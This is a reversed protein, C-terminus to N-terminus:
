IAEYKGSRPEYVYGERKLIDLCSQLDSLEMNLEHILEEKAWHKKNRFLGQVISLKDRLKSPMYIESLSFNFDKLFAEFIKKMTEFDEFAAQQRLHLKASAQVVRKMALLTRANIAIDGSKHKLNDFYSSLQKEIGSISPEFRSCYAFYKKLLPDDTTETNELISYSNIESNGKMTWILDFRQLLTEPLNIQELITKSSDFFSNIPNAAAVVTTATSFKMKIGAKSKTFELQEMASHLAITDEKRMKDLEDISLVGNNALVLMGPIMVRTGNVESIAATLGPGSADSVYFGKPSDNKVAKLLESKGIGPNGVMLIHIKDRKNSKTGGVIALALSEKIVNYEEGIISSAFNKHIYDWPEKAIGEIKIAEDKSIELKQNGIFKIAYALVGIYRNMKKIFQSLFGAVDVRDGVSYKNISNGRVFVSIIGPTGVGIDEYNEILFIEQVREGISEDPLFQLPGRSYGCMECEKIKIQSHNMHGCAPCKFVMDTYEIHPPNEIYAVWGSIRILKNISGYDLGSISALPWNLIEFEPRYFDDTDSDGKQVIINCLADNLQKIMEQPNIDLWELICKATEHMFAKDSERDYERAVRDILVITLSRASKVSLAM